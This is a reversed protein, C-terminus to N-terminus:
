GALLTRHLSCDTLVFDPARQLQHRGDPESFVETGRQWPERFPSAHHRSALFFASFAILDPGSDRREM